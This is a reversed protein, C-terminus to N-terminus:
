SSGGALFEDIATRSIRVSRGCRVAPLRGDDVMRRVTRPSVGLLGAASSYNHATVDPNQASAASTHLQDTSIPWELGSNDAHTWLWSALRVVDAPIERKVAICRRAHERLAEALHSMVEPDDTALIM